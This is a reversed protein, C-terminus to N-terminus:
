VESYFNALSNKVAEIVEKWDGQEKQRFLRMTPYWPSDDREQMWRWDAASHLLTFVPVGLAGALHAPMSDVTILLDLGKVVQAYNYLNFNGPNIGSGQQWGAKEADAQLIIIEVHEMEFLPKLLNFPVDRRKDWGGAQWVLGITKRENQPAIPLPEVHLYPVTAPLTQLTTRFIHPLEMIEVDMDYEVEPTGDHLPLLQDIGEATQLLPILGPQAWVIVEKTIRKLQPMFRIYQITDGLGHYCRVLVKKGALPEGNWIYQQHRPLHWCPKGKNAQLSIDSCKWADEFQGLRMYHMWKDPAYKPPSQSM